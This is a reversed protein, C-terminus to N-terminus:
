YVSILSKTVRLKVITAFIAGLIYTSGFFIQAGIFSSNPTSSLIASAIPPGLSSLTSILFLTSIGSSTNEVGVIDCTIPAALAFYTGGFFGFLCAFALLTGYTSSNPWVIMLVLCTIISSAIYTNVRGIKDAIFGLIIRGMANMISFVGLINSTEAQSIGIDYAYRPFFFISTYYGMLSISSGVSWIMLDPNKFMDLNILSRHPKKAHSPPLRTRILCISIISIGFALLGLIRYTWSVGHKQILFSTLPSFALGGIGTGASTIGMAFARKTTFWRPIVSAICMYVICDGLGFMFGQTLYLQWVKNTSGSLIIGLSLLFSGIFMIWRVGFRNLYVNLFTLGNIMALMVSGIGMIELMTVQGKYQSNMLKNSLISGWVTILGFMIFYSLFGVFTIVWGYGGDPISNYYDGDSVPSVISTM